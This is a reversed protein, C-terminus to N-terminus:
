TTIGAAVIHRACNHCPFTYTFLSSGQTSGNGKMALSVIADMEAHIARSFEILGKLRTDNYASEAIKKSLEDVDFKQEPGQAESFEFLNDRVIEQIQDRLRHKEK